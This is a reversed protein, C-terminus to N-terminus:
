SNDNVASRSALPARTVPKRTAKMIPRFVLEMRIGEPDVAPTGALQGLESSPACATIFLVLADLVDDLAVASRPQAQMLRDVLRPAGSEFRRLVTMRESAGAATKKTHCMSRGGALAWFCLEPHAERFPAALGPQGRVLHDVQAIKDSINWSQASLSRGLESVNATRAQSISAAQVAARCPVPFVSSRRAALLRRALPDPPRIPCDRWPLGIPIDICIRQADPFAQALALANPFIRYQLRGSEKGIALWGARCGDVGIHV